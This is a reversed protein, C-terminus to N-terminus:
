NNFIKVITKDNKEHVNSSFLNKYYLLFKGKLMFDIIAICFYGYM